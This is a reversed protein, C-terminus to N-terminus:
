NNFYFGSPSLGVSTEFVQNGETDFIFVKGDSAFDIADAIYILDDNVSFGYVSSPASNSYTFLPEDSLSDEVISTSYVNNNSLYYFQGNYIDLQSVANLGAPFSITSSVELTSTDVRDIGTAHNAYITGANIIINQLGDGTEITTEISNNDPNIVTIDSGEGFSANQVFLRFGDSVIFEATKTLPITTEVSYDELNIVTVFDDAGTNFSAQNTVYAKGDLVAGYRPVDLNTSIEAVKEFTFRNVVTILNSGNSIIYALGNLDFFISQPFLGLEEGDNITSFVNQEVRTLDDSIFSVGSLGNFGGQNLVITGNQYDGQIDPSNSNDDNECSLFAFFSLLLTIKFFNNM